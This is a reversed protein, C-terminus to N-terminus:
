VTTWITRVWKLIYLLAGGGDSSFIFFSNGDPLLKKKFISKRVYHCSDLILESREMAHWEEKIRKSITENPMKGYKKAVAEDLIRRLEMEIGEKSFDAFKYNIKEM